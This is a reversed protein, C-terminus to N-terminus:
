AKKAKTPSPSPKAPAAAQDAAAPATVIVANSTSSAEGGPSIATVVCTFTTGVDAHTIVYQHSGTGTNVGDRQWQYGFVDADGTWNGTTCSLVDFDQTVEPADVVTPPALVTVENSTASTGGGANGAIVVCVFKEGIHPADLSFTAEDAGPINAGGTQWQYAYATPEGNWNGMTCSLTGGKQSAYPVDIVTPAPPPPPIYIPQTPITVEDPLYIPNTAELNLDLGSIYPAVLDVCAHGTLAAIGARDLPGTEYPRKTQGNPNPPSQNRFVIGNIQGGFQLRNRWVRDISSGLRVRGITIAM